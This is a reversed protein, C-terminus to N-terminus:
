FLFGAAVSIFFLVILTNSIITLWFYVPNESRNIRLKPLTSDVSPFNFVTGRKVSVLTYTAFLIAGILSIIQLTTM